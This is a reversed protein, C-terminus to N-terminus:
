EIARVAAVLQAPSTHSYVQVSTLKAHGALQQATVVSAGAAVIESIFHHRFSHASVGELGAAQRHQQIHDAITRAAMRGHTRTVFLPAEPAVSFGRMKKFALLGAVAERARANLPIARSKSGKGLASPVVLLPRSVGQWAVNHVDLGALEALRLGTHAALVILWYDQEGLPRRRNVAALLQTLEEPNINRM